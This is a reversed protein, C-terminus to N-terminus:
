TSEEENPKTNAASEVDSVKIQGGAGTGTVASLDIGLEAARAEAAETVKPASSQELTFRGARIKAADYPDAPDVRTAWDGPEYIQGCATDEPHTSTVFYRAAM